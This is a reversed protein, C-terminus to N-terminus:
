ACSLKRAFAAIKKRYIIVKNFRNLCQRLYHNATQKEDDVDM